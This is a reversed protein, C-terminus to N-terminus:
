ASPEEDRSVLCALRYNPRVKDLEARESGTPPNPDADLSLMFRNSIADETLRGGQETLTYNYEWEWKETKPNWVLQKCTYDAGLVVGSLAGTSIFGSLALLGEDVLARVSGSGSMLPFVRESGSGHVGSVVRPPSFSRFAKDTNLFEKLSGASHGKALDTNLFDFLQKRREASLGALAGAGVAKLDYMLRLQASFSAGITTETM